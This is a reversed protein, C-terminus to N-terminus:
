KLGKLGKIINTKLLELQDMMKDHHSEAVQINEKIIKLGGPNNNELHIAFQEELNGKKVDLTYVDLIMTEFDSIYDDLWKKKIPILEKIEKLTRLFNNNANTHSCGLNYKRSACLNARRYVANEGDYMKQAQGVDDFLVKEHIMKCHLVRFKALLEIKNNIAELTTIM